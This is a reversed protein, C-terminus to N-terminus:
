LLGGPIPNIFTLFEDKEFSLMRYMMEFSIKHKYVKRTSCINKVLGTSGSGTLFM